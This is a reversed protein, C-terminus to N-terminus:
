FRNFAAKAAIHPSFEDTIFVFKVSKGNTSSRSRGDLTSDRSFIATNKSEGKKKRHATRSLVNACVRERERERESAGSARETMDVLGCELGRKGAGKRWVTGYSTVGIFASKVEHM